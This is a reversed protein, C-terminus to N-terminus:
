CKCKPSEKQKPIPFLYIQFSPVCFFHLSIDIMHSSSRSFDDRTYRRMCDAESSIAIARSM